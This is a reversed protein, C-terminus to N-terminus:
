NHCKLSTCFKSSVVLSVPRFSRLRKACYVFRSVSESRDYLKGRSDALEGEWLDKDVTRHDM